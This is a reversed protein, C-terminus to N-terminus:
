VCANYSIRYQKRHKGRTSILHSTPKHGFVGCMFAPIRISGGIDTGIGMPSGGAALLSAEGGSSGGVNRTTNYPNCTLGFIPNSTEQWMNLQPINSVGLCIGGAKKLLEVCDADYQAKKDRRKLIGFTLSLGKVSTSEKTTFPVGLFPKERFDADIIQGTSIDLDIQKAEKLADEFRNDILSNTIPNVEEIRDIFAQVVDVVQLERKRIKRALSTASELVIPNKSKTIYVRKQDYYLSFLKDIILDILYRIFLLTKCLM